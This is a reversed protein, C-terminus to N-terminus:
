RQVFWDVIAELVRVAKDMQQVSIHEYPGHFSYGGTGLNPCPLGRFSLQAGDTGGRIPNSVPEMGVSRIADRAAEVVEPHEEIVQRMNRYQDTITVKAVDAGYRANITKEVGRMVEKREEFRASDHDRIIYQM